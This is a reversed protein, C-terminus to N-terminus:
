REICGCRYTRVNLEANCKHRHEFAGCVWDRPAEAYRYPWWRYPDGAMAQSTSLVIVATLLLLRTAIM